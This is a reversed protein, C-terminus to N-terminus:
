RGIPCIIEYRVGGAAATQKGETNIGTFEEPMADDYLKFSIKIAVPWENQDVRCWNAKYGTTVDEFLVGGKELYGNPDGPVIGYWDINGDPQDGLAGGGIMDQGDTWMFSVESINRALIQWNNQVDAPTPPSSITLFPNQLLDRVLIETPGIDSTRTLIQTPDLDIVDQQASNATGTDTTRYLVWDRRWLTGRPPDSPDPEFGYTAVTGTGVESGTVSPSAGATTFLLFAQGAVNLRVALFGNQTIRQVDKRITDSIAAAAQNARMTAHSMSAVKQSSNLVMSFLMIMLSLIATSVLLEILTMGSRSRNTRALMM